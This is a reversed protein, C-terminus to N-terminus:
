GVEVEAEGEWQVEPVNEDRSKGPASGFCLDYHRIGFNFVLHFERGSKVVPAAHKYVPQIKYKHNYGVPRGSQNAHVRHDVCIRDILM